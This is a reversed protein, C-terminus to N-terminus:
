HPPVAKRFIIKIRLAYHTIQRVSIQPQAYARGELSNAIQWESSAM